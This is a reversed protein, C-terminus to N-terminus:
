NFDRGLKELRRRYSFHEVEHIHRSSSLYRIGRGLELAHEGGQVRKARAFKKAHAAAPPVISAGQAERRAKAYRVYAQAQCDLLGWVGSDPQILGIIALDDYEPHFVHLHFRPFGERRNLLEDSLYPVTVHYGTAYVVLDIEERTGDQFVVTRGAFERVNPKAHLDGHGLYYFIQSNIIPHSEFLRHDPKPLGFKQPDGQVMKLLINNFFRRVVLPVRLRLSIEGLQDAPVGFAYKPIYHYGRRVSHFAATAHQAAEVAIDCGSNGAGIVLVRKGRLLDPTKYQASHLSEGAFSGPYNPLKPDWNFGSAVILGSYRSERTEGTALDRTVVRWDWAAERHASAVETRFRIKSGLRNKDAYARLYALAQRHNPYDPYEKPMPFDTYETLPKSSIMHVSQYVTSRTNGINWVGGLDSEREFIDCDWGHELLNKAAALGSPGAGVVCYKM